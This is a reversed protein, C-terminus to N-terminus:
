CDGRSSGVGVLGSAIEGFDFDIECGLFEATVDCDSTCRTMGCGFGDRGIGSGLLCMTLCCDGVVGM